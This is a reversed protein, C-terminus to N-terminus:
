GIGDYRRQRPRPKQAFLLACFLATLPMTLLIGMSGVVAQLIEVIVMERNLLEMFSGSFVILLLITTLSSGIYALVLTNAMSGMIDKGINIGSEFMDVAKLNPAQTKFEWLASSISVAVDMVAGVAGILIGAFIIATLDIAAETPLHLLHISDSDTFGTLRLAGTMFFTLLGAAIVGCLCGIVAALSKKNIGNLLLITVVIAYVCTIIAALYINKGNLIAPIFVIFIMTCTFGLSLIASLGKSRGFILLLVVFVGALILMGNIRVYDMFHWDGSIYILIVRDGVEIEREVDAIFGGLSQNATVTQNRYQGRTIRAEFLITTSSSWEMDSEVVDLIQTVRAEFHNMHENDRDFITLGDSAIMNGFYLFLVASVLIGLYPLLGTRNEPKM